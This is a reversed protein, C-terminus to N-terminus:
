MTPRLGDTTHRSLNKLESRTPFPGQVKREIVEWSDAYASFFWTEARKRGKLSVAPDHSKQTNQHIVELSSNPSCRELQLVPSARSRGELGDQDKEGLDLLM